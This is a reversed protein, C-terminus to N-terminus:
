AGSTELNKRETPLDANKKWRVVRKQECRRRKEEICRAM